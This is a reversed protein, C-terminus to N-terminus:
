RPVKLVVGFDLETLEEKCEDDVALLDQMARLESLYWQQYLAKAIFAYPIEKFTSPEANQAVGRLDTANGAIGLKDARPFKRIGPRMSNNFYLPRTPSVEAGASPESCTRMGSYHSRRAVPFKATRWSGPM